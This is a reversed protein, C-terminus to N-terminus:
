SSVNNSNMICLKKHLETIAAIEKESINFKDTEIYKIIKETELQAAFYDNESLLSQLRLNLEIYRSSDFPIFTKRKNPSIGKLWIDEPDAGWKNIFIQKNTELGAFYKKEGEALFSKSGFHHIFVDRAIVTKYGSLQLRLCYDDDEFNGPAFREDLGGLLTLVERKLLVCLFAARPFETYNGRENVKLKDAHSFMEKITSYKATKDIQVGSVYNSMPAAIGYEKKQEALSILKELWEKTFILDNNAIVLYEGNAVKLGQNVAGPFGVNEVNHITTYNIRGKQKALKDIYAKTGDTSANNILIIEFPLQTSVELSDICQKTYELNNFLPIVISTLRPSGDIYRTGKQISNRNMQWNLVDKIRSEVFSVSQLDAFSEYVNRLNQLIDINGTSLSLLNEFNLILEKKETQLMLFRRFSQSLLSERIEHSNFLILENVDWLYKKEGQIFEDYQVHWGAAREEEAFRAARDQMVKKYGHQESRIPYHRLLFPIPFINRDAFSISHGGSTVLDIKQKTNKWAKIQNHDFWRGPEYYTLYKRVDEFPPFSNDIPRFNYLSFNIANYGLKDVFAIGESLSTNPFPSERFEDADAHIIWDAESQMAIQQKRQLILHWLYEKKARVSYEADDPFTEIHILGKGLLKKAKDVTKDTSCNDILYVDVGNDILDKIVHYIVDEENFSSIIALIILKNNQPTM